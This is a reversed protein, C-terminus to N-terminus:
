VSALAGIFIETMHSPHGQEVGGGPIYITPQCTHGDAYFDTKAGSSVEWNTTHDPVLGYVKVLGSALIHLYM